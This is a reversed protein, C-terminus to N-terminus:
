EEFISDIYSLQCDYLHDHSDDLAPSKMGLVAKVVNLADEFVLAKAYTMFVSAVRESRHLVSRCAQSRIGRDDLLAGDEDVYVSKFSRHYLLAFLVDLSQMLLNKHYEM